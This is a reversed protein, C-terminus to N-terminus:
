PTGLKALEVSCARGSKTEPAIQKCHTFDEKAGDIKGLRVRTYGREEWAVQLSKCDPSDVSVAASFSEEAAAFDKKKTYAVGLRYHGVCFKPQSTSNRLSIIGADLKGSQVQAWGLNGWALHSAGYAPDKTLPELLAIVDSYRERWLLIQALLNKADRFNDDAHIAKRAYQEALDISCDPAKLQPEESCFWSYIASTFYLAKANEPDLEVAKKAHDLAARPQGKYFVDRALDYETESQREVSQARPGGSSAPACGALVAFAASVGGFGAWVNLHRRNPWAHSLTETRRGM